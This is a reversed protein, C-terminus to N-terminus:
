PKRPSAGTSRRPRLSVSGVARAWPRAEAQDDLVAPLRHARGRGRCPRGPRPAKAFVGARRLNKGGRPPAARDRLRSQGCDFDRQGNQPCRSHSRSARRRDVAPRPDELDEAPVSPSGSDNSAFDPASRGPSRRAARDRERRPTELEETLPRGTSSRAMQPSRAPSSPSSGSRGGARPRGTGSPPAPPPRRSRRAPSSAPANRRRPSRTGDRRGRASSRAGRPCPPTAGASPAASRCCPPRAPSRSRPDAGRLIAPRREAGWGRWRAAGAGRPLPM